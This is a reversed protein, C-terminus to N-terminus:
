IEKSNSTIDGKELKIQNKQTKAKVKNTQTSIQEKQNIKKLVVQKQDKM